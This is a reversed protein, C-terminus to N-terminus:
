WALEEKRFVPGEKCVRKSTGDAMPLSCGMCIGFGCGMRAELSLQGPQSLAQSVARLMPTPGCAYFYDFSLGQRSIADTVFGRTGATGDMTAVLVRDSHPRFAETYFIEAATNFGLVVSVERGRAKLERALWYLPATGIGGGVLLMHRGPVDLSFGNGLQTLLELTRGPGLAAMQRTGQGVVKYLLTLTRGDYNCVSIPRRLYLGDLAINVFQGPVRAACGPGELQM